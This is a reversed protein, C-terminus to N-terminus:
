LSSSHCYDGGNKHYVSVWVTRKGKNKKTEDKEIEQNYMKPKKFLQQVKQAM